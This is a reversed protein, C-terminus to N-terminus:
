SGSRGLAWLGFGLKGGTVMNMGTKTLPNRVPPCAVQLRARFRLPTFAGAVKEMTKTCM